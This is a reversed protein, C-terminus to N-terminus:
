GAGELLRAWVRQGDKTIWQLKCDQGAEKRELYKIVAGRSSADKPDLRQVLSLAQVDTLETVGVLRAALAHDDTTVACDDRVPVASGPTMM